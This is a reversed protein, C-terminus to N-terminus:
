LDAGQLGPIIKSHGPLPALMLLGGGAATLSGAEQLDEPSLPLTRGAGGELERWVGAHLDAEFIGIMDGAGEERRRAELRALRGRRGTM